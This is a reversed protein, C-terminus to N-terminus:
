LCISIDSIPYAKCSHIYGYKEDAKRLLMGKSLFVKGGTLQVRCLSCEGSRCCVNMRVGARELATLISENAKAPIQREGDVTITFVEQGSLEAPWGAEKTIDKAAGFMERRINKATLGLETLQGVCFGNMIEPGCIYATRQAYDPCLSRILEATMFGRAGSWVSQEDSVVLAYRFNAFKESLRTLEDHFLAAEPTRCGYLLVMDRDLGAELVERIMSMFPTIGSGGALMLMKPSHFVPHFRFVGAPCSATFEDGARVKDLFYDSVFGGTTRAVTIEYYARQRPSSCISYPRSTRVGDIETFINLYQGAEFPPLYGDKASLRFIKANKGTDQIDTVVLHLNKPHIGSLVASDPEEAHIPDPAVQRLVRIQELTEEGHVLTGLLTEKISKAM